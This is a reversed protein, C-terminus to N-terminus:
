QYIEILQQTVLTDQTHNVVLEGVHEYVLILVDVGQLVADDVLQGLAHIM